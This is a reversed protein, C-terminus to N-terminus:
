RYLTHWQTCVYLIHMHGLTDIWTIPVNQISRAMLFALSTPMAQTFQMPSSIPPSPTPSQQDATTAQTPTNCPQSNRRSLPRAIHKPLSSRNHANKWQYTRIVIPNSSPIGNSSCLLSKNHTHAHTHTHTRACACTHTHTYRLTGIGAM